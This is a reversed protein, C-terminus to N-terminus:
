ANENGEPDIAYARITPGYPWGGTRRVRYRWGNLIPDRTSTAGYRAAFNDGDHVVESSGDAFTATVIIRRFAGSDDTVDFFVPDTRAIATGVTPEVNSVQPPYDVPLVPENVTFGYGTPTAENGDTDSAFIRITLGPGAWGATRRLVFEFGNTIPTKTSAVAYYPSFDDGDHVVEESGISFEAAVVVRALAGANDTVRFTISDGVEITSEVEPDWGTIQPQILDRPEAIPLGHAIGLVVADPASTGFPGPAIFAAAFGMITSNEIDEAGMNTMTLNHAGPGSDLLTPYTDGEGMRWWSVLNAPAGADNLDQPIEANYIWAIETPTLARDYVAMEDISGNLYLYSGSINRSGIRFDASTNNASGTLNDYITANGALPAGNDYFTFGSAAGNGSFVVAVFHWAGDNVAVNSNSVAICNTAWVRTMAFSLAGTSHDLVFAWGEPTGSAQKAVVVGSGTTKNVRIWAAFTFATDRDFPLVVGATAHDNLGDFAVSKTTFASM